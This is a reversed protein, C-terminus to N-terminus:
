RRVLAWGLSRLDQTINRIRRDSRRRDFTTQNERRRRDERRRDVIVEVTESAFVHRLYQYRALEERAVIVLLRGM